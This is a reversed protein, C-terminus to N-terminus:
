KEEKWMKEKAWESGDIKQQGNSIMYDRGKILWVFFSPLRWGFIAGVGKSRGVPVLQTEKENKVFERDKGTPKADPNVHAALLDRKLNTEMVPVGELIDMIGDSGHTGIDGIAYVRPGASDVRLTSNNQAVKGRANKLHQPVYESMAITGMAPIYIDAEVEEGLTLSAFTLKNRVNLFPYAALTVEVLRM